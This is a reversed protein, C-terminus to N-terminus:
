SKAGTVLGLKVLLGNNIRIYILSTEYGNLGSGVETAHRATHVLDLFENVTVQHNVIVQSEAKVNDLKLCRDPSLYKKQNAKIRMLAQRKTLVKTTRTYGLEYLGHLSSTM